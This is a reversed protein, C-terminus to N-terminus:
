LEQARLDLMAQYRGDKASREAHRASLQQLLGALAPDKRVEVPPQSPAPYAAHRALSPGADPAGPLLIDPTVGRGEFHSGDVRFAQAVTMSLQGLRQTTSFRDLSIHVQVTSRGYSPDGLVLARGQDQLAAAFIEAGAATGKDLLLALPGDWAAEGEPTKELTLKGDQGLQQVVPVGPLFLGTMSAAQKLAGGGNNRLDLLVADVGAQKLTRLQGGVYSAASETPRAGARVVVAEYFLPPVDIIGIRYSAGGGKVTETRTHVVGSQLALADALGTDRVLTVRTPRADRAAGSPLVELVVSSGPAGRLLDVVEDVHWGTVSTMPQDPQRAVGVIRDGEKLQGSRAAASGHAVSFVEIREERKRITLGSGALAGPKLTGTPPPTFRGDPDLTHVWANMFLEFVDTPTMAELRARHREHRRELVPVIDQEAVGALRLSLVDDMVRQRWLERLAAESAARPADARGRRYREAGTFSMPQRLQEKAQRLLALYRPRYRDFLAFAAGLDPAGPKGLRARLDALERLDAETFVMRETDLADLCADFVPVAARAGAQPKYRYRELVREAWSAAEVQAPTPKMVTDAAACQAAVAFALTACVQKFKMGCEANLNVKCERLDVCYEVCEM